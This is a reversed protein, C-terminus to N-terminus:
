KFTIVYLWHVIDCYEYGLEKKKNDLTMMFWETVLRGDPTFDKPRFDVWIHFVWEIISKVNALM